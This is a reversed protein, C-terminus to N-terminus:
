RSSTALPEPLESGYKKLSVEAAAKEIYLLIHDQVEVRKERGGERRERETNDNLVGAQM